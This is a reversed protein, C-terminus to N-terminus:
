ISLTTCSWIWLKAGKAYNNESLRCAKGIVSVGAPPLVSVVMPRREGNMPSKTLFIRDFVNRQGQRQGAFRCRSFGRVVWYDRWRTKWLKLSPPHANQAKERGDGNIAASWTEIRARVEGGGAWKEDDIEIKVGAV